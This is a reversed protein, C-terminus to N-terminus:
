SCHSYGCSLCTSCGELMSLSGGCDPCPNSVSEVTKDETMNDSIIKILEPKTYIKDPVVETEEMQL